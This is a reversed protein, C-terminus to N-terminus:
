PTISGQEKFVERINNTILHFRGNRRNVYKHYSKKILIYERRTTKTNVLASKSWHFCTYGLKNCTFTLMFRGTLCFICFYEKNHSFIMVCTLLTIFHKLNDALIQYLTHLKIHHGIRVKNRLHIINAIEGQAGLLVLFIQKTHFM